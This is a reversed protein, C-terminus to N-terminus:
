RVDKLCGFTLKGIDKMWEKSTGDIKREMALRIIKALTATCVLNDSFDMAIDSALEWEDVNSWM